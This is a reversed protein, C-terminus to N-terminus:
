SDNEILFNRVGIGLFDDLIEEFTLGLPCFVNSFINEAPEVITLSVPSLSCPIQEISNSFILIM